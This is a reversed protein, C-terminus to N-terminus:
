LNFEDALNDCCCNELFEGPTYGLFTKFDKIFHSQDYYGNRIALETLNINPNRLIDVVASQYRVLKSYQKPSKGLIASFKRELTKTTVFLKDSLINSNIQGYNTNILKIAQHILMYDYNRVPFFRRILFKEIIQIREDLTIANCVQEEIEKIEKFYIDCLDISSDEIESMPFNFFNCAGLPLFTVAIVGAEGHTSVDLYSNTLGSIISQPQVALINDNQDKVVFPKRYHFMLQVNGTPIVRESVDGDCADTEMM